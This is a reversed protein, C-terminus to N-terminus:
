VGIADFHSLQSTIVLQGTFLNIGGLDDNTSRFFPVNNCTFTSLFGVSLPDFKHYKYTPCQNDIIWALFLPNFIKEEATEMEDTRINM